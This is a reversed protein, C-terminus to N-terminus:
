YKGWTGMTTDDMAGSVTHYDKLSSKPLGLVLREAMHAQITRAIKGTGPDNLSFVGLIRANSDSEHDEVYYLVTVVKDTKAM